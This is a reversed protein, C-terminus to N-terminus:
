WHTLKEIQEPTKKHRLGSYGESKFGEIFKYLLGSVQKCKEVAKDFEQKTIFGQDLAVYLQSRVEGCSGKAIYLFYLFEEKSGREFGEAINSIISVAARCVQDKLSFDGFEPKKTLIYVLNTLERAQQWCYLEEFSKAM